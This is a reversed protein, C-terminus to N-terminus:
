TITGNINYLHSSDYCHLTNSGEITYGCTTGAFNNAMIVNYDCTDYTSWERFGHTQTPSAQDDYCLNGTVTSNVVRNFRIGYTFNATGNRGSGIVVNSSLTAYKVQCVYIGNAYSYYVHNSTVTVGIANYIQIGAKCNCIINNSITVEQINYVATPGWGHLYIGIQHYDGNAEDPGIVTNQIVHVRKVYATSNAEADIIIGQNLGAPYVSPGFVIKNGRIWVDTLNTHQAECWIPSGGFTTSRAPHIITNDIIHIDHINIGRTRVAYSGANVLYNNIIYAYSAGCDILAYKSNKFFSNQITINNGSYACFCMNCTGNNDIFLHDILVNRPNNQLQITGCAGAEKKIAINRFTVNSVADVKFMASIYTDSVFQTAWSEGLIYTNNKPKFQYGDVDYKADKFFILGDVNDFVKKIVVGDTTSYNWLDADTGNLAYCYSGVKGIIFSATKELLSVSSNIEIELQPILSEFRSWTGEISFRSEIFATTVALLWIILVTELKRATIRTNM